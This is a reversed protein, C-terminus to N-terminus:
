NTQHSLIINHVHDKALSVADVLKHGSALNAAIASALLCGTGRVPTSRIYESRLVTLTGGEFLYDRAVRKSKEDYFDNPLHGGKILVNTAGMARLIGAAKGIDAQSKIAFGAILEAEPINPTVM